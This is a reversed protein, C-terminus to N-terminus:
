LDFNFNFETNGFQIVDQIYKNLEEKTAKSKSKLKKEIEGTFHNPKHEFFFLSKLDSDVENLNSYGLEELFEPYIVGYLLKFMKLKEGTAQITLTVEKNNRKKLEARYINPYDPIFHNNIIKGTIM